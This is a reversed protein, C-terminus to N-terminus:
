TLAEVIQQMTRVSRDSFDMVPKESALEACYKEVASLVKPTLRMGPARDMEEHFVFALSQRKTVGHLITSMSTVVHLGEQYMGWGGDGLLQQRCQDATVMQALKKKHSALRDVYTSQEEKLKQQAMKSNDDGACILKLFQKDVSTLLYAQAQSPSLDRTEKSPKDFMWIADFCDKDRKTMLDSRQLLQTAINEFGNNIAQIGHSVKWRMGGALFLAVVSKDDSRLASEFASETWLIGQNALERRPNQTRGDRIDELVATQVRQEKQVAQMVGLQMQANKAANFKSAIIGGEASNVNSWAAGSVMMASLLGTAILVPSKHLKTEPALARRFASGEPLSPAVFKRLALSALLGVVAITAAIPLLAIRPSLFDFVAVLTSGFVLSANFPMVWTSVVGRAQAILAEPQAAAQMPVTPATDIPAQFKSSDSNVFTTGCNECFKADIAARYGCSTCFQDGM